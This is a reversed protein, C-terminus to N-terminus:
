LVQGTCWRVTRHGLHWFSWRDSDLPRHRPKRVPSDPAGHSLLGWWRNKQHNPSYIGRLWWVEICRLKWGECRMCSSYCEICSVVFLDFGRGLVFIMGILYHSTLSLSTNMQARASPNSKKKMREQNWSLQLWSLLCWNHPPGQPSKTDRKISFLLESPKLSRKLSPFPQFLGPRQSWRLPSYTQLFRVETFCIV